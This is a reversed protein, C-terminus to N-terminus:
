CQVEAFSLIVITSVVKWVAHVAEPLEKWGPILDGILEEFTTFDIAQVSSNVPLAADFKQQIIELEEPTVLLNIFFLYHCVNQSLNSTTSKARKQKPRLRRLPLLDERLKKRELSKLIELIKL